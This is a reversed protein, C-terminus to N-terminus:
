EDDEPDEESCEGSDSSGEESKEVVPVCDPCLWDGDPVKKLPPRLCGCHYGTDCVDCILLKREDGKKKCSRCKINDLSREWKVCNDLVSLLMHLDSYTSAGEVMDRWKQVREHYTFTLDAPNYHSCMPKKLYKAEVTERLALMATSIQEVTPLDPKM